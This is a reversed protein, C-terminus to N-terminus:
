LVIGHTLTCGEYGLWTEFTEDGFVMEPVKRPTWRNLIRRGICPGHTPDRTQSSAVHQPTRLCHAVAVSAWMGSLKHETVLSAVIIIIGHAEVLSSGGSAVVLFLRSEDLFVM